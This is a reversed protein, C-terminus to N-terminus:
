NRRSIRNLLSSFRSRPAPPPAQPPVYTESAEPFTYEQQHITCKHTASPYESLSGTSKSRKRTAPNVEGAKRPEQKYFFRCWRTSRALPNGRFKHDDLRSHAKGRYGGEKAYWVAPMKMKEAGIADEAPREPRVFGKMTKPLQSRKKQEESFTQDCFQEAAEPHKGMCRLVVHLKMGNDINKDKFARDIEYIPFTLTHEYKSHMPFKCYKMDPNMSTASNCLVPEYADGYDKFRRDNYLDTVIGEDHAQYLRRAIEHRPWEMGYNDYIQELSEKPVHEDLGDPERIKWESVVETRPNWMLKPPESIDDTRRGISTENLAYPWRKDGYEFDQGCTFMTNFWVHGIKKTKYKDSLLKKEAALLDIRVDGEVYCPNIDRNLIFACARRSVYERDPDEAKRDNFPRWSAKEQAYREKNLKMMKDPRWVERSGNTVTVIFKSKGKGTEPPREVYIGLIEQRRPLYNLNKERLHAYYYIYRRQSPITVGQNNKTRVISYYDLVERPLKYFQIYILLACIMVGTRGKGAKCHVAIVHKPDEDLWAKAERCFPAMLELKPPHHDTMDMYIVNNDFCRPDYLYGGRLNFVKVNGSGHRRWLFERTQEMPNRIHLEFGDAPYGIAIIRDTIYAADLDLNQFNVRYRKQSVKKRLVAQYRNLFTPTYDVARPAGEKRNPDETPMSKPRSSKPTDRGGTDYDLDAAHKGEAAKSTSPGPQSM